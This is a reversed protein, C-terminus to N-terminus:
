KNNNSTLPIYSNQKQAGIRTQNQKAITYMVGAVFGIAIASISKPTAPDNFFILGSAAVPLKNLAGVMSYLKDSFNFTLLKVFSYTTSSTTRVCWATTYSIGVAAAGSFVITSLLLHRNSPPFNKELSELSWDEKVLSAFVLLPVSLANNYAMSDWDKFATVKIRKRMLLVYAASSLCNTLMWCYGNASGPSEVHSFASVIDDSAAVLSSLVM